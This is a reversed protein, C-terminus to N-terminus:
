RGVHSFLPEHRVWALLLGADICALLIAIFEAMHKGGFNGASVRSRLRSWCLAESKAESRTAAPAPVFGPFTRHRASRHARPAFCWIISTGYCLFVGSDLKRQLPKVIRRQPLEMAGSEPHRRPM